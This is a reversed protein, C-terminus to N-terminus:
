SEQDFNGAPVFLKATVMYSGSAGVGLPNQCQITM